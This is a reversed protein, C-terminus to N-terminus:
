MYYELSSMKWSFSVEFGDVIYIDPSPTLSVNCLASCDKDWVPWVLLWQAADPFQEYLLRHYFCPFVSCGTCQLRCFFLSPEYVYLQLQLYREATTILKKSCIHHAIDVYMWFDFYFLHLGVSRLWTNRQSRHHQCVFQCLIGRDGPCFCAFGMWVSSWCFVSVGSSGHFLHAMTSSGPQERTYAHDWTHVCVPLESIVQKWRCTCLCVRDPKLCVFDKLSNPSFPDPPVTKTWGWRSINLHEPSCMILFRCSCM